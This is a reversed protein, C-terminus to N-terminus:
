APSRLARAIEAIAARERADVTWLVGFLGGAARAVRECLAVVEDLTRADLGDGLDSGERRALEVLCARGRAVYEATPPEALWTELVRAGDGDVMHHEEALRRILRAEAGQVAGDAWAVQVLPLLAVVRHSHRDIGLHRLEDILAEDTM